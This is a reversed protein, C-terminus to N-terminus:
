AALRIAPVPTPTFYCLLDEGANCRVPRLNEMTSGVFVKPTHCSLAVWDLSEAPPLVLVMDVTQALPGWQSYSKGKLLRSFPVQSLRPM